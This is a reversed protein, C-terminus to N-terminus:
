GVRGVSLVESLSCQIAAMLECCDPGSRGRRSALEAAGLVWWRSSAVLISGHRDFASERRRRCPSFFFGSLSSSRFVNLAASGSRGCRARAVRLKTPPRRLFPGGDNAAPCLPDLVGLLLSQRATKLFECAAPKNALRGKRRPQSVARYPRAQHLPCIDLRKDPRSTRREEKREV